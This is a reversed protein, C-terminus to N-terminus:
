ETLNIHYRPMRTVGCGRLFLCGRVMAWLARLPRAGRVEGTDGPGAKGTGTRPKHWAELCLAKTRATGTAQPEKEARQGKATARWVPGVEEVSRFRGWIGGGDTEETEVSVSKSKKRISHLRVKIATIIKELM